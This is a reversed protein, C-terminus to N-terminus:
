YFLVKINQVLSVVFSENISLFQWWLKNSLVKKGNSFDPLKKVSCVYLYAQGGGKRGEGSNMKTYKKLVRGWGWGRWMSCVKQM